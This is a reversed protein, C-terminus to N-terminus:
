QRAGSSDPHEDAVGNLKRGTTRRDPLQPSGGGVAHAVRLANKIARVGSSGHCIICAGQIGLLPGGGVGEYEFRGQAAQAPRRGHGRRRSADATAARTGGSARFLFEVTGEGAKLLVNGIFGECVVVRVHGHYIDRGEVNGVFRAAM